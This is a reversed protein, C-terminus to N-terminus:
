RTACSAGATTTRRSRPPVPQRRPARGAVPPQAAPDLGPGAGAGPVARGARRGPGARRPVGGRLGRAEAAGGRRAAREDGCLRWAGLFFQLRQHQEREAGRPHRLGAGACRDAGAPLRLLRQGARAGGAPHRLVGAVRDRAARARLAAPFAARWPARAGGDGRRFRQLTAELGCSTLYSGVMIISGALKYAGFETVSLTRVTLISIAVGVVTEVFFAGYGAASWALFKQRQAPAPQNM